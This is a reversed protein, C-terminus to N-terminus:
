LVSLPPKGNKRSADYFKSKYYEELGRNEIVINNMLSELYKESYKDLWDDIIEIIKEQLNMPNPNCKYYKMQNNKIIEIGILYKRVKCLNNSSIIFKPPNDIITDGKALLKDMEEKSADTEISEILIKSYIKNELVDIFLPKYNQTIIYLSEANVFAQTIKNYRNIVKPDKFKKKLYAFLVHNNILSSEIITDFDNEKYKALKIM